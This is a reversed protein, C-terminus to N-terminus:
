QGAVGNCLAHYVLRYQCCLLLSEVAKVGGRVQLHLQFLQCQFSLCLCNGAIDVPVTCCIQCICHQQLFVQQSFSGQCCCLCLCSIQLCIVADVTEIQSNQSLKQCLHCLM